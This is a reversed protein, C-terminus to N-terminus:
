KEVHNSIPPSSPPIMAPSAVSIVPILADTHETINIPAIGNTIIYDNIESM